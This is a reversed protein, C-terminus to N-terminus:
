LTNDSKKRVLVRSQLNKRYVPKGDDSLVKFITEASYNGLQVTEETSEPPSWSNDPYIQVVSFDDVFYGIGPPPGIVHLQVRSKIGAWREPITFNLSFTNWDTANWNDYMDGDTKFWQGYLGVNDVPYIRLKICNGVSTCAYPTEDTDNFAKVKFQINITVNPKACSILGFLLCIVYGPNLRFSYTVIFYFM